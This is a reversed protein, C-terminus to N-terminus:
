ISREAACRALVTAVDFVAHPLATAGRILCGLGIVADFRATDAALRAAMPIEFAGPVRVVTIDDDAVGAKALAALAGKQLRDTVFDNYKSVVVAFKLGGASGSGDIVRM